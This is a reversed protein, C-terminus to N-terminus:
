RPLFLFNPTAELDDALSGTAEQRSGDVVLEHQYGHDSLFGFVAEPHQGYRRTYREVVEIFLPPRWRKLTASAGRVVALESGEVDCKILDVRDVKGNLVDDLRRSPVIETADDSAAMQDSVVFNTIQLTATMRLDGDHDSLAVHHIEVHDAVGNKALNLRLFKLTDKVPEFALIKIDEVRKALKVCHLGINAGVDIMTGGPPLLDAMLATEEREYEKGHEAWTGTGSLGGQYAWLFGSSDEFWAGDGDFHIAITGSEAIFARGRIVWDALDLHKREGTLRPRIARQYMALTRPMRLRVQDRITENLMRRRAADM